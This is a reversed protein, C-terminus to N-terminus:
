TEQHVVEPPVVTEIAQAPGRSARRACEAAHHRVRIEPCDRQQDHVADPHGDELVGLTHRARRKRKEWRGYERCAEQYKWARRASWVVVWVCDDCLGDGQVALLSQPPDQREVHHEADRPRELQHCMELLEGEPQVQQMLGWALRRPEFAPLVVEPACATKDRDEAEGGGGDDDAVLSIQQVRVNEQDACAGRRRVCDRKEVDQRPKRLEEAGDARVACVRSDDTPKGVEISEMYTAGMRGRGMGSQGARM